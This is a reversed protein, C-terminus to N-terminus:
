GTYPESKLIEVHQVDGKPTTYEVTDGVKEGLVASGLPSTPSYVDISGAAM